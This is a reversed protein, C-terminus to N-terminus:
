QTRVALRKDLDSLVKKALAMHLGKMVESTAGDAQYIHDVAILLFGRDTRAMDRADENSM